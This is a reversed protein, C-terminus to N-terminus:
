KGHFIADEREVTDAIEAIEAAIGRAMAARDFLAVEVAGPVIGLGGLRVKFLNGIKADVQLCVQATGVLALFLGAFPRRGICDRMIAAALRVRGM